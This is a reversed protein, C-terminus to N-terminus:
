IARKGVKWEIKVIILYGLLLHNGRHNIPSKKKYFHPAIGISEKKLSHAIYYRM